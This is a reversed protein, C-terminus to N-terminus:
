VGWFGCEGCLQRCLMMALGAAKRVELESLTVEAEGGGVEKGGEKEEKGGGERRGRQQASSSPHPTPIQHKCTVISIHAQVCVRSPWLLVLGPM